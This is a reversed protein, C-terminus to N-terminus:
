PLAPICLREARPLTPRGSLTANIDETLNESVELEGSVVLMENSNAGSHHNWPSDTAGVIPGDAYNFNETLVVASEAFIAPWLFAVCLVLSKVSGTKASIEHDIRFLVAPKCM